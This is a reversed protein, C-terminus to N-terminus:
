SARATITGKMGMDRHGGVPCSIEYKGAEAIEVTLEAEDGPAITETTEDVGPGDIRLAHETKGSNAVVFTVTGPASM